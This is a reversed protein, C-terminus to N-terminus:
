RLPACLERVMSLTLGWVVRGDLDMSPVPLPLPGIRRLSPVIPLRSLRAIPVWFAEDVEAPHLVLDPASVAFVIPRVRMPRARWPHATVRDALRGLPASLTLGVEERAERAAASGADEEDRALGGPFALDGSWRDGGRVPRRIFLLSLDGRADPSLVVAVAAGTRGVPAALSRTLARLQESM